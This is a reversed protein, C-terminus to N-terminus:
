AQVIRTEAPWRPSPSVTPGYGLRCLMQVREEGVAGLTAHARKFFEAMADFEQLAQSQPHIGLGLETAKLNVRLYDRGAAIQDARTNGPTIQWLYAMTTSMPALIADQMQQFTTSATDTMDARDLFGFVNLAEFFAGGLDVGDPNAEIERKGIRTLKLSEGLAEPTGLETRMGAVTMDRLEAVRARDATTEVRSGFSAADGLAALAAAAVPRSTDYADKNSRRDLAHRFLPDPTASPDPAFRIRAVPRGDLRPWPEGEPFVAIDARVGDEAAALRMLELFCGLGITIQRDKPDTVPLRRDLDCTLVVEDDGILHVLWPQRNHPNPALIAYSLAKRRPDHAEAGAARWPEVAKEPFRTALWSGGWGAALIVGGGTVNLFGRRTLAM